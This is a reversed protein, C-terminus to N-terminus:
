SRVALLAAVADDLDSVRTVGARWASLTLRQGCWVVPRGWALAIRAEAFSEGGAGHRAILLLAECRMIDADNREAEARLVEPSHRSFDEPGRANDAWRSVPELGFAALRPHVVDRVFAADAYPAAVFIKMAAGDHISM